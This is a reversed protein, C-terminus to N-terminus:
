RLWALRYEARRRWISDPALDAAQVLATYAADRQGQRALSAGLYYLADAGAGYDLAKQAAEVARAFDACQYSTAALMTWATADNPLVQVAVNAASLGHECVDYSTELHFQATLLAYRGRDERPALWMARHYAERAHMYDHHYIYWNAWSIYVDPQLPYRKTLIAIQEGAADSDKQMLYALTLLIRVHPANPYTELLMELHELADEGHGMQLQVYATYTYAELDTDDLISADANANADVDSQLQVFQSEALDYVHLHAYLKGLLPTREPADTQLVALLQAAEHEIAPRLPALFPNEPMITLHLHNAPQALIALAADSDQAAKLLAVRYVVVPLWDIPLAHQMARQYTQHAAAYHEQHLQWEAQLIHAPGTLSSAASARAWTHRADDVYGQQRLVHSLYLVALDHWEDSLNAHIAQRLYPEAAAYEGRVTYLIGLRLSLEVLSTHQALATYEQLAHYFQQQMLLKDAQRIDDRTDPEFTVRAALGMLILPLAIRLLFFSGRRLLRLSTTTIFFAM